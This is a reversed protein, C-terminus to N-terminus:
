KLKIGADKSNSLSRKRMNMSLRTKEPDKGVHNSVHARWEYKQREVEDLYEQESGYLTPDELDDRYRARWAYTGSYEYKESTLEIEGIKEGM